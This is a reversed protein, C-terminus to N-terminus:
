RNYATLIWRSRGAEKTVLKERLRRVHRETLGADGLMALMGGRAEVESLMARMSKPHAGLTPRDRASGSPEARPEPSSGLLAAVLPKLRARVRDLNAGTRAYDAVIDEPDAGLVALVAAAFVGTRDKGASCHFLTAGQAAAIVEIARVIGASRTEAMDAYWRGVEAATAGRLLAAALAEPLALQDTLPLHHHAVARTQLIGRGTARLEHASRLDIVDTLGRAVLADAQGAPIFSVDDSRWLLGHRLTGDAVAIGGLDRLNALEAPPVHLEGLRRGTM